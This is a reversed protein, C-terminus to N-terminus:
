ARWARRRRSPLSSRSRSKVTRKRALGAAAEGHRGVLPRAGLRAALGALRRAAARQGDLERPPPDRHEDLAALAARRARASRLEGGAARAVPDDAAVRSRRRVRLALLEARARGPAASARADDDSDLLMVDILRLLADVAEEHGHPSWLMTPLESVLVPDVITDLHALHEPGLDIEVQERIVGIGGDAPEEYSMVASADLKDRGEEVACLITRSAHYRGVRELRNAVEGKWERDVVVVLNLM